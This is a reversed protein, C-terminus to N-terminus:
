VQKLRSLNRCHCAELSCGCTQGGKSRCAEERKTIAKAGSMGAAFLACWDATCGEEAPQAEFM